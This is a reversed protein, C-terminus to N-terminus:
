FHSQRQRHAYKKPIPSTQHSLKRAVGNAGFGVEIAAISSTHPPEGLTQTRMSLFARSLTFDSSYCGFGTQILQKYLVLTCDHIFDLSFNAAGM